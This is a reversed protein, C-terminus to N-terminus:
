WRYCWTDINLGKIHTDRLNLLVAKIIKHQFLNKLLGTGNLISEPSSNNGIGIFYPQASKM